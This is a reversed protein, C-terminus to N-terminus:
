SLKLVKLKTEKSSNPTSLHCYNNLFINALIRCHQPQMRFGYYISIDAFIGSLSNRCVSEKISQFIIFCFISWQVALDTPIRLGGRDIKDTFDGFKDFYFTTTDFLEEESMDGDKRTVYGAIYVLAIKTEITVSTELLELTDFIEASEDSLIYDCDPCQHGSSLLDEVEGCISLLNSAKQINLKELVQQVTIFYAGGSSQRLKCFEKEIHDSTFLGICVYDHSTALLHLCLEVIGNCTQFVANATDQTLQRVRGKTNKKMNLCMDGFSKM